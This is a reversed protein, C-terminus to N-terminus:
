STTYLQCISNPNRVGVDCAYTARVEIANQAWAVGGTDTAALEIGGWEALYVDTMRALVVSACNLGSVHVSVNSSINTTTFVPIGRIRKDLEVSALGGPSFLYNGASTSGMLASVVHWTRPCMLFARGDAPVNDTDLALIMDDLYAMTIAAAHTGTSVTNISGINIMGTPEVSATTAAGEICVHDISTALAAAMDQRIITEAAGPSANVMFKSLQSRCAAFHPVLQLTGPTASAETITANQNLWYVTPGTTIKPINVPAGSCPLMTIGAKKCVLNAYYYDVFQQPLLESDVWYGGASGSAWGIATKQLQDFRGRSSDMCMREYPAKSWDHDIQAMLFRMFSFENRPPLHRPNENIAKRIKEEAAKEEASQATAPVTADVPIIAPKAALRAQEERERLDNSRKLEATIADLQEKSIDM